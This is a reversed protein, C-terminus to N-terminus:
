FRIGLSYKLIVDPVALVTVGVDLNNFITYQRGMSFSQPLPNSLTSNLSENDTTVIGDGFMVSGGFRYQSNKYDTVRGLSQFILGDIDLFLFRIPLLAFQHWADLRDRMRFNFGVGVGQSAAKGIINGGHEYSLDGFYRTYNIVMTHKGMALDVGFIFSSPLNLTGDQVIDSIDRETTLNPKNAELSDLTVELNGQLIDDGTGVLFVPLFASSSVNQGTLEFVPMQNYVASLSIGRNLQYHTGVRFGYASAEFEGFANMFFSNSEGLSTNLNPDDPNNFYREDAGGVVVMGSLDAQLSRVNDIQYRTVTLGASLKQRHNDFFMTAGGLSLTSMRLSMETLLSINMLVDFRISVEDTGQEQAIKTSLGTVGIDMNMSIPYTYAGALVFRNSIPAAFSISSIDNNFGVDLNRMETPQIYTEPFQTWSEENSFEDNIATALEDNVTTLLESNIGSTINTGLGFRSDIAIYGRKLSALHAPNLNISLAGNDVQSSILGGMSGTGLSSGVMNFNFGLNVDMYGGRFLHLESADSDDQAFVSTSVSACILFFAIKKVTKM